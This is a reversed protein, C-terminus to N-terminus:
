KSKSIVQKLAKINLYNCKKTLEKKTAKKYVKSEHVYFEKKDFDRQIIVYEGDFDKIHGMCISTSLTAIGVDLYDPNDFAIRENRRFKKITQKKM